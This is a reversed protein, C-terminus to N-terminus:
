ADLARTLDRSFKPGALMAHAEMPQARYTNQPETVYGDNNAAFLLAQDYLPSLPDIQSPVQRIASSLEMQWNHSNEHFLTNMTAEFDDLSGSQRNIMLRRSNANWAGRKSTPDDEIVVDAPERFGAVKCYTSTVLKMTQRKEKDSLNPWNARAQRLEHGHHTTLEAVVQKRVEAERQLFEDTLKSGSYLRAQFKLDEPTMKADKAKPQARLADLLKVHQRPTLIQRTVDADTFVARDLLAQARATKQAPDGIRGIEEIESGIRGRLMRVVRDGLEKARVVRELAGTYGSPANRIAQDQAALAAETLDDAWCPVQQLAHQFQTILAREEPTLEDVGDNMSSPETGLAILNLGHLFPREAHLAHFFEKAGPVEPQPSHALLERARRIWPIVVPPGFPEKELKRRLFTQRVNGPEVIQVRRFVDDYFNNLVTELETNLAELAPDETTRLGQVLEDLLVDGARELELLGAALNPAGPRYQAAEKAQRYDTIARQLGPLKNAARMAIPEIRDFIYQVGARQFDHNSRLLLPTHLREIEDRLQPLEANVDDIRKKALKKEAGKLRNKLADIQKSPCGWRKLDRIMGGLREAEACPAHYRDADQQLRHLDQLAQDVSGHSLLRRIGDMARRLTTTASPIHRDIHEIKRAIASLDREIHSAARTQLTPVRQAQDGGNVVIRNNLTKGARSSSAGDARQPSPGSENARRSTAARPATPPAWTTPQGNLAAVQPDAPAHQQERNTPEVPMNPLLRGNNDVGRM